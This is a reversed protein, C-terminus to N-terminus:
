SSVPGAKARCPVVPQGHLQSQPRHVARADQRHLTSLHQGIGDGPQVDGLDRLQGQPHDPHAHALVYRKRGRGGYLVKYRKPEFLCALKVPFEAKAVARALLERDEVVEVM